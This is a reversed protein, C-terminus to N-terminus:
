VREHGAKDVAAELDKTAKNFGVRIDNWAREDERNRMRVRAKLEAFSHRAAKLLAELRDRTTARLLTAQVQLNEFWQTMQLLREEFSDHLKAREKNLRLEVDRLHNETATKVEGSSKAARMQLDSTEAKLAEIQHAMLNELEDTYRNLQRHLQDIGAAIGSTANLGAVGLRFKMERIESKLDTNVTKIREELRERTANLESRKAAVEAEIKTKEAASATRAKAMQTQIDDQLSRIRYKSRQLYAEFEADRESRKLERRTITGLKRLDEELREAYRDEVILALASTDPELSQPFGQPPADLVIREMLRMSGVGAFAGTAAGVAAAAPGGLTGSAVGLAAGVVAAAVKESREDDLERATVHGNKDKSALSYDILEIWGDRDLSKAADLAKAAGDKSNATLIILSLESM